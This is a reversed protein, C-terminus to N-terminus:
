TRTYIGFLTSLMQFRALISRATAFCAMIDEKQETLVVAGRLASGCLAKKKEM